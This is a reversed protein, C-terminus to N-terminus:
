VLELDFRWYIGRLGDDWKVRVLGDLFGIIEGETRDLGSRLTVKSGIM